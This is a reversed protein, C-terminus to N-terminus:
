INKKLVIKDENINLEIYETKNIIIYENPSNFIKKSICDILDKDNTAKAIICPTIEVRKKNYNPVVYDILWKVYWDLQYDLISQTPEEDKLEILKFYIKDDDEQKILIDIRQMGVGCAVENGLWFEKCEFKLLNLKDINQIIYAQLHTEFANKRNAKYLLRKTISISNERGKYIPKNEMSIIKNTKSDFSYSESHYTHKNKHKLKNILDNFEYDMIMTCGRNGKLKRYILSWCLEYPHDKDKLSDLYEHETIGEPFVGFESSEILIRFSLGKNLETKLYNNKDNEYFFAKSKAKFVGFFMGQSKTTAQLYFVINDGIQIRSIDAIMGVLNRETFANFSISADNLFAVEKDKAGTGAFMNELHYKFTKENVIFIHTNM